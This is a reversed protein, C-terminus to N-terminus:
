LNQARKPRLARGLLSSRQETVEAEFEVQSERLDEVLRKALQSIGRAMASRPHSMVVPVGRNLSNIALVPDSAIAQKFRAQLRREIDAKPVGGRISAGNLVLWVKHQSYARDRFLALTTRVNRVGVLEPLLSLIVTDAGDLFAYATDDFPLGRDVVVWAFMRKLLVLIHEVQVPQIPDWLGEPPALLVSVGSVHSALATSLSVDDLRALRPLLDLISRESPLNLAVDLAPASYDADVLVVPEGTINHLSVATNVAITTRGTGGKPSCVAVVRGDLRDVPGTEVASRRTVLVQRLTSVLDAPQVPKTVFGRAGALVARRALDVAQADVVLLIAAGPVRATLEGILRIANAQPLADDVLIVDPVTEEARVLVLGPQSVWYLRFERGWSSLAQEFEDRASELASVLLIRV